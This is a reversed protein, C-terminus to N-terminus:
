GAKPSATDAYGNASLRTARIFQSLFTGWRKNQVRRPFIASHMKPHAVDIEPTTPLSKMTNYRPTRVLDEPMM